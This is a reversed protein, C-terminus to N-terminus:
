AKSSKGIKYFRILNITSFVFALFNLITFVIDRIVTAYIALLVSGMAYLGSLSPPPPGDRLAVVWGLVILVMGAIGLLELVM